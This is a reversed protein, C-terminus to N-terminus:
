DGPSTRAQRAQRSPRLVARVTNSAHAPSIQGGRKGSELSATPLSHIPRRPPVFPVHSIWGREGREESASAGCAAGNNRGFQPSTGSDTLGGARPDYRVYIYVEEYKIDICRLLIKKSLHM